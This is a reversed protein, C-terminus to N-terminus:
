LIFYDQTEDISLIVPYDLTRTFTLPSIKDIYTIVAAGIEPCYDCYIFVHEHVLSRLHTLTQFM